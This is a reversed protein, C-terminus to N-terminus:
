GRADLIAERGHRSVFLGRSQGTATLHYVDIACPEIATVRVVDWHILCLDGEVETTGIAGTHRLHEGVLVASFVAPPAEWAGRKARIRGSDVPRVQGHVNALGGAHVQSDQGQRSSQRRLSTHWVVAEGQEGSVEPAQRTRGRRRRGVRGSGVRRVARAWCIAQGMIVCGVGGLAMWKM